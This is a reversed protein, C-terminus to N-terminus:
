MSEVIDLVISVRPSDPLNPCIYVCLCVCVCIYIYVNLTQIKTICLSNRAKLPVLILQRRKLVRCELVLALAAYKALPVLKM